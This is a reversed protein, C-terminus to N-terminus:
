CKAQGCAGRATWRRRGPDLRAYVFSDDAALWDPSFTRIETAGSWDLTSPTTPPPAVVDDDRTVFYIVGALLVVATMAIGILPGRGRQDPRQDIHSRDDVQMDRSREFTPVPVDVTELVDPNPVPNTRRVLERVQDHTM